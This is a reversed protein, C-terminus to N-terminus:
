ESGTPTGGFSGVSTLIPMYLPECTYCSQPTDMRLAVTLAVTRTSDVSAQIISGQLRGAAEPTLVSIPPSGAMILGLKADLNYPFIARVEEDLPLDPSNTLRASPCSLPIAPPTEPWVLGAWSPNHDTILSLLPHM